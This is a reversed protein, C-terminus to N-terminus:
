SAIKSNQVEVKFKLNAQLADFVKLITALTVNKSGKELKIIQAKSVEVLEGLQQTKSLKQMEPINDWKLLCKTHTKVTRKRTKALRAKM